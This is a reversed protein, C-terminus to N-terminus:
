SNQFTQHPHCTATKVPNIVQPPLIRGSLTVTLLAITDRKEDHRHIPVQTSGQEAM